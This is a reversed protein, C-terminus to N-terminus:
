IKWEAKAKKKEIVEAFETRRDIKTLPLLMEAPGLNNQRLQRVVEEEMMKTGEGADELASESVTAFFIPSGFGLIGCFLAVPLFLINGLKKKNYTELKSIKERKDELFWNM